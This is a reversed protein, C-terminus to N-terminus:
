PMPLLDPAVDLNCIGEATVASLLERRGGARVDALVGSVGESTVGPSTEVLDDRRKTVKKADCWRQLTWRGGSRPGLGQVVGSEVRDAKQEGM